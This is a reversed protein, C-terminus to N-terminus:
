KGINKICIGHIEHGKYIPDDQNILGPERKVHTLEVLWPKDEFDMYYEEGVAPDLNGKDIHLHGHVEAGSELHSPGGIGQRIRSRIGEEQFGPFAYNYHHSRAGEPLPM